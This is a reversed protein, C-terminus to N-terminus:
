SKRKACRIEVDCHGRPSQWCPAAAIVELMNQFGNHDDWRIVMPISKWDFKVSILGPTSSQPELDRWAALAEGFFANLTMCKHLSKPVAGLDTESLFFHLTTNQQQHKNLLESQPADIEMVEDELKHTHEQKISTEPTRPATEALVPNEGDISLPVDRQLENRARVRREQQNRDETTSRKALLSANGGSEKADKGLPAQPEEHPIRCRLARSAARTMTQNDVVVEKRDQNVPWRMPNPVALSRIPPISRALPSAIRRRKRSPVPLLSAKGGPRSASAPTGVGTCDHAALHKSTCRACSASRVARVCAIGAAVCKSCGPQVVQGHKLVTRAAQKSKGTGEAYEPLAEDGSPSEVGDEVLVPAAVRDLPSPLKIPPRRPPDPAGSAASPSPFLGALARLM